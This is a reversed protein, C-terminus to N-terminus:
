KARQYKIWDSIAADNRSIIELFQGYARKRAHSHVTPMWVHKPCRPYKQNEEFWEQIKKYVDRMIQDEREGGELRWFPVVRIRMERVAKEQASKGQWTECEQNFEQNIQKYKENDNYEQQKEEIIARVASPDIMNEGIAVVGANKEIAQQLAEKETSNIFIRENHSLIVKYTKM